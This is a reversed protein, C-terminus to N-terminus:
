EKKILPPFRRDGWFIGGINEAMYIQIIFGLAKEFGRSIPVKGNGL